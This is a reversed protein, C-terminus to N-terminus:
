ATARRRAPLRDLPRLRACLYLGLPLGYALVHLFLQALPRADLFWPYVVRAIIQFNVLWLILGYIMAAIAHPGFHDRVSPAVSKAIAGWLLGFLSSLVFHVAFGVIFISLNLPAALAGQGLLISAFLAWPLLASAGTALALLMQALAFVAGAVLGGLLGERLVTGAFAERERRTVTEAM